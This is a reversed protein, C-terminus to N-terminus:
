LSLQDALAAALITASNAAAAIASKSTSGIDRCALVRDDPSKNRIPMITQRCETNTGEWLRDKLLADVATAHSVKRDVEEKVRSYFDSFPENPSQLLKALHIPKSQPNLKHFASKAITLCQDFCPAPCTTQITPLAWQGEKKLADSPITTLNNTLNRADVTEAEDYYLAKWTVFDGPTLIACALNKWDAACNHELSLNDLLMQAYPSNLGDEQIAKHLNSITKHDWPYWNYPAADSPAFNVPFAHVLPYPPCVHTTPSFPSALPPPTSYMPFPSTSSFITSTPLNPLNPKPRSLFPCFRCPTPRDLESSILEKEEEFSSDPSQHSSAVAPTSPPFPPKLSSLGLQKEHSHDDLSLPSQLPPAAPPLSSPSDTNSAPNVLPPYLPELHPPEYPPAPTSPSSSALDKLPILSPGELSTGTLCAHVALPAPILGLPFTKGEHVEVSHIRKLLKAWTAPDWITATSLWPNFHVVLKWYQYLERESIKIYRSALLARLARAQPAKESSSLEGM